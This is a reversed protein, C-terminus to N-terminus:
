STISPTIPNSQIFRQLKDLESASFNTKRENCSNCIEVAVSISSKSKPQVHDIASNSHTLTRSCIPCFGNSRLKALTKESETLEKRKPNLDIGKLTCAEVFLKDLVAIRDQIFADDKSGRNYGGALQTAHSVLVEHLMEEHEGIQSTTFTNNSNRTCFYMLADRVELNRFGRIQKFTFVPLLAKCVSKFNSVPGEIGLTKLLDKTIPAGQEFGSDILKIEMERASHNIGKRRLNSGRHYDAVDNLLSGHLKYLTEHIFRIHHTGRKDESGVGSCNLPGRLFTYHGLTDDWLGQIFSKLLFNDCYIRDNNALQVSQNIKMFWYKQEVLPM